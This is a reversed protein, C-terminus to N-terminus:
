IKTKITYSPRHAGKKFDKRFSIKTCQGCLNGEEGKQLTRGAICNMFFIVTNGHCIQLLLEV